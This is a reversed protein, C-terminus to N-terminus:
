EVLIERVIDKVKHVHRIDLKGSAELDVGDDILLADEGREHMLAFAKDWGKRPIDM